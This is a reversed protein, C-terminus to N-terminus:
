SIKVIKIEYNLIKLILYFIIVGIVFTLIIPFYISLYGVYPIKFIVVGLVQTESIYIVKSDNYEILIYDDDEDTDNVFKYGGDAVLNNDGKTKFYWKNDIKIKDIARHIIPIDDPLNNWFIPDYGKEYFYKAGKLILIDGNEEGVKIDEPSKDGRIVLDGVNLTPAMSRSTIVFLRDKFLIFPFLIIIM